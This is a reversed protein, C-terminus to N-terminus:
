SMTKKLPCQKQKKFRAILFGALLGVPMFLVLNWLPMFLLGIAATSSTPHIFVSDYMMLDLILPLMAGCLPILPNRIAVVLMLCVLYPLWSLGIIKLSLLDIGGSTKFFGTYTHLLMGAAIIMLASTRLILTLRRQRIKDQEM